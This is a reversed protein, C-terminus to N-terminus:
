IKGFSKQQPQPFIEDPWLPFPGFWRLHRGTQPYTRHLEPKNPTISTSSGVQGDRPSMLGHSPLMWGHNIATWGHSPVIKGHGSPVLGHNPGALGHIIKMLGRNKEVLGRNSAALSRFPALFDSKKPVFGDGLRFNILVKRWNRGVTSTEGAIVLRTKSRSLNTARSLRAASTSKRM